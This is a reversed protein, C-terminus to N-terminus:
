VFIVLHNAELVGIRGWPESRTLPAFFFIVLMDFRARARQFIHTVGNKHNVNGRKIATQVSGRFKVLGQSWLHRHAIDQADRDPACTHPTRQLLKLRQDTHMTVYMFRATLALNSTSGTEISSALGVLADQTAKNKIKTLVFQVPSETDLPLQPYMM